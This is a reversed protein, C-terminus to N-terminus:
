NLRLFTITKRSEGECRRVQSGERQQGERGEGGAEEADSPGPRLLHLQRLRVRAPGPLGHRLLGDPVYRHGQRLPDQAADGEPPHQYNDHDAGHHDRLSPFLFMNASSNMYGSM